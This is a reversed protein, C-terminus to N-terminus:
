PMNKRNLIAELFRKVTWTSLQGGPGNLTYDFGHTAWPLYLEFFPINLPKLKRSLRTGHRPSVLPDNEAYIMLTPPTQTTVTETASSHIYQQRVQELTGGLYDEMIKRSDLVLPNTPNEYGWVMDTPGYFDIVAKIGPDPMTYAASLAIQGGASRGLLVFSSADLSLAAAQERLFDIAKQVDELPAPYHAKPALRYNISAVHYGCKALESNLEPLQRNNGGAWSGGHIVLVCPRNGKAEAPYFDLSLGIASDYVFTKAPVKWSNIGTIVKFPNFPPLSMSSYKFDAAFDGQLKKGLRWAQWYPLLFLFISAVGILTGWLRYSVNGFPWFLLLLVPGLFLWSFETALISLYWLLSTPARFIVLLSFLFFLLLLILRIMGRMCNLRESFVFYPLNKNGSCFFGFIGSPFLAYGSIACHGRKVDSRCRTLPVLLTYTQPIFIM